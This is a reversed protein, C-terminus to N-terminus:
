MGSRSADIIQGIRELVRATAGRNQDVLKRASAGMRAAREPENLLGLWATGLEDSSRVQIGADAKLFNAAM